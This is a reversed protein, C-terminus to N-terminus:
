NKTNAKYSLAGSWIADAAGVGQIVVWMVFIQMMCYGSAKPLILGVGLVSRFPVWILSWKKGLIEGQHATNMTSRLLTYVLIISGLALVASNFIGFMESIIQSGSGALVGDVSGFINGLFVMSVDGPTPNFSVVHTVGYSNPVALPSEAFILTSHIFTIVAIVFQYLHTNMKKYLYNIRM